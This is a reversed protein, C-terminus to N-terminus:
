KLLALVKEAIIMSNARSAEATQAGIHPTSVVNPLAILKQLMEQAFPPEESFVDIGAGGLPGDVLGQYLAAEDVVGGRATNILIAGKPMAQIEKNGILGRTHPTLPVHVTLVDAKAVLEEPSLYTVGLQKMVEIRDPIIDFGSVLMKFALARKAVEEGILGFGWIGMRRGRLEGGSCDKKRWEGQRMGQDGFAVKRIVSLALAFVLEAVSVSPGEPSNIVTIGKELAHTRDVNDLGVGARAIVKLAKGADIVDQTVKTRGRVVLVDFHEIAELLQEATIDPQVVLNLGANKMQEIADAHIPDAILIRAKTM